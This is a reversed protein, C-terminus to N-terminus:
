KVAELTPGPLYVLFCCLDQDLPRVLGLGLKESKVFFSFFITIPKKLFLFIDYKPKKQGPSSPSILVSVILRSM